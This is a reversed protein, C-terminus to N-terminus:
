RGDLVEKPVRCWDTVLYVRGGRPGKRSPSVRIYQLKMMQHLVGNLQSGHHAPRDLRKVYSDWHPRYEPGPFYRCFAQAVDQYTCGDPSCLILWWVRAYPGQLQYNHEDIADVPGDLWHGADSLARVDVGRRVLADKVKRVSARLRFMRQPDMGM